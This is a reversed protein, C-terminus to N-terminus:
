RAHHMKSFEVTLMLASQLKHSSMAHQEDTCHVTYQVTFYSYRPFRESYSVLVYVSKQKSHAISHTRSYQVKGGQVTQTHPLRYMTKAGKKKELHHQWRNNVKQGSASLIARLSIVWPIQLAGSESHASLRIATYAHLTFGLVSSVPTWIRACEQIDTWRRQTM